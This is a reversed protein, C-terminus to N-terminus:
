CVIRRLGCRDDTLDILRVSTQLAHGLRVLDSSMDLSFPVLRRPSRGIPLKAMDVTPLNRCPLETQTREAATLPVVRVLEVALTPDIVVLAVAFHHPRVASHCEDRLRVSM